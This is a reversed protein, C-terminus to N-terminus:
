ADIKRLPEITVTIMLPMMPSANAVRESIKRVTAPDNMMAANVSSRIQNKVQTLDKGQLLSATIPQSIEIKM